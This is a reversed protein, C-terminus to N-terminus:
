VVRPQSFKSRVLAFSAEHQHRTPYCTSPTVIRNRQRTSDAAVYLSAVRGNPEVGAFGTPQDLSDVAVFTQGGLLMAQFRESNRASMAWAEVQEPSYLAPAWRRVTAEYLDALLAQDNAHFPRIQLMFTLVLLPLEPQDVM